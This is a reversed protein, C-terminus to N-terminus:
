ETELLIRQLPLQTVTDLNQQTRLSCGNLGIYLNLENILQNALEITDDFSHVVGGGGDGHHWCDQNEKLIDFLDTGVNRNHLFLPLKTQKALTQLQLIFYKKQVEMSTFELRDYDLGIEGIAIVTNDKMGDIAIDILEEILEDDNKKITADIPNNSGNSTTTIQDVFVQQCRTPHVGVTCYFQIPHIAAYKTNFQRVTPIAQRSEEITGCTIIIKQVGVQSAREIIADLDSEHRYTGRYIGNMFRDDLLSDDNKLIIM